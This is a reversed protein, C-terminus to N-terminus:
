KPLQLPPMGAEGLRGGILQLIRYEEITTPDVWEADGGNIFNSGFLVDANTTSVKVLTESESLLTIRLTYEAKYPLPKGWLHYVDSPTRWLQDAFYDTGNSSHELVLCPTPPAPCGDELWPLQKRLQEVPVHFVYSTPNPHTLKRKSFTFHRLLVVAFIVALPSFLLLLLALLVWRPLKRTLVQRGGTM